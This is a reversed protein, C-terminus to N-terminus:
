IPSSDHALPHLALVVVAEEPLEEVLSAVKGHAGEVRGVVLPLVRRM